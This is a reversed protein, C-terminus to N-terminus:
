KEMVAKFPAEDPKQTEALTKEGKRDVCDPGKKEITYVSGYLLSNKNFMSTAVESM